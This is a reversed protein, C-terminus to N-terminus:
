KQSGKIVTNLIKMKEEMNTIDYTYNENNVKETHGLISAAVPAPVGACRMNSNVTRRIAHISKSKEFEKTATNNRIWDSITRAHIRGNNASFVFECIWNNKSEYEKTRKM